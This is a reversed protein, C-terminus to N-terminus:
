SCRARPSARSCAGGRGASWPSPCSWGARSHGRSSMAPQTAPPRRLLLTNILRQAFICVVLLIILRGEQVIYKQTMETRGISIMHTWLVVIDNEQIQMYVVDVVQNWWKCQDSPLRSETQFKETNSYKWHFYWYWVSCVLHFFAHSSKKELLHHIHVTVAWGSLDGPM